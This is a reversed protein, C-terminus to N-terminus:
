RRIEWETRLIAFILDDVWEGNVFLSERFHAELRMGLKKMLQISGTNRPDVSAIVRHKNLGTFLFKLIENLAETAFGQNQHEKSITCGIEVQSKQSDFFHLGVDGIIERNDKRIVVFQFWTGQVDPVSVIRKEIFDIMDNLTEPIWGQYKNTEADARYRFVAEADSKLMPRLILRESYLELENM